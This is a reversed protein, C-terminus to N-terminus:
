SPIGVKQCFESFRSDRRLGELLPDYKVHIVWSHIEASRMLAKFAEDYEGMGANIYLRGALQVAESEDKLIDRLVDGAEKRRGTLAFLMGQAERLWRDTSDIGLGADLMEQAESYERRLMHRYALSGYVTPNRPNLKKLREYVALGEQDQGSMLLFSAFLNGARFSLPDLEYGKKYAELGQALRGMALHCGGLNVYADSLSPSIQLARESETVSDEFRDYLLHALAMAAHTEAYDPGLGLAKHATAEAKEALLLSDEGSEGALRAWSFSLAAYARAFQPDDAIARELLAIADHTSAKTGEHLLQVAKMYSTYANIDGTESRQAKTFVGTSLSSAVRSAIDSQIAFIDDLKRDYTSAWLHEQNQSNILQVSIRVKDGAKRVSGEIISGVELEKAIESINKEKRKYNMVSTRAIVRLGEIESLKTILEETLGDSFYEDNPDPSLSVLPLVAIRRRDPQVSSPKPAESWPMGVKFIEMPVEVNKLFRSGLSSLQLDVKNRVHDYVQRTLCVGGDEALSEIRSAVNVADGSVDGESEIVEGVHIGVRLHIRKDPALSFNFERIARQIDYACRVADVANPFEVLFDDGITKVERGSHRQLVPRILKRQEEVLTLSLSENRQGLATYGVMDTFM